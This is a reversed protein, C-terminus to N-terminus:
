GREVTSLWHDLDDFYLEKETSFELIHRADTYEILQKRRSPLKEFFDFNGKNDCIPDERAVGMFVPMTLRDTHSRIFLRAEHIQYYFDGSAQKLSLYDSAIFNEYAQLDTFWSSDLPVPIMFDRRGPRTTIIRLKAYLPVTTQTYIAPTTLLMGKVRRPYECAFATIPIAGFCHGLILIKETDHKRCVFDAVVSIDQIMEHFDKMDGRPSRSLGSGRRDMSYVPHGLGAIHAASQAFWGSHSQLGHAMIVPTKVGDDGFVRVPIDAFDDTPIYFLRAESLASKLEPPAAVSELWTDGGTESIVSVEARDWSACGVVPVLIAIVFMLRLASLNPRM